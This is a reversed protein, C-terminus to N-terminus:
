LPSIKLIYGQDTSIYIFGKRDEIVNRVRFKLDKLFRKEGVIGRNKIKLKNLHKLALAGSFFDGQWSKFKKGSYILLGCPAISPVWYKIPQKLGRKEKIGKGVKFGSYERGHTIIPWGYNAGKEILNIEDGGKPGHEQAWLEGTKPHVFLGQPNRHGLSWIEKKAEKNKYFPNSSIAKGDEDLRLIKGLHSSLKQAEDRHGRDGITMFLHNQKNFVIRSGFHINERIFPEAIFITKLNELNNNKLVGKALATTNKSGNKLSYTFYVTRNTKFQPHLAVDLLGGQGGVDIDLNHKIVTIKKSSLNAIKVNGQRETLLIENDSIFVMGWPTGLNKAVIEAKFDNKKDTYFADSSSSKKQSFSYSSFLFIFSLLCAKM